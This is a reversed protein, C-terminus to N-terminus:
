SQFDTQLIYKEVKSMKTSWILTKFERKFVVLMLNRETEEAVETWGFVWHTSISDFSHVGKLLSGPSQGCM